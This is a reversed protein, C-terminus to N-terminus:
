GRKAVACRSRPRGRRNSTLRSTKAYSGGCNGYGAAEKAPVIGRYAFEHQCPAHHMTLPGIANLGVFPRLITETRKAILTKATSLINVEKAFSRGTSIPTRLPTTIPKPM